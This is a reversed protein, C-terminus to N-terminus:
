SITKGLIIDRKTDDWYYVWENIPHKVPLSTNISPQKIPLNFVQVDPLPHTLRKHQSLTFNQELRLFWKPISGSYKSSHKEKVEDWTLLYYGDSSVLQNIFLICKNRLSQIDNSTLNNIYNRIPTSGGITSLSFNPLFNFNYENLLRIIKTLHTPNKITNYFSTIDLPIFPLWLEYLTQYLKHIALTSLSPNNFIITVLSSQSKLQNDFLSILNPFFSNYLIQDATSLPLSLSNKYLRKIPRLLSNCQPYTLICFQM